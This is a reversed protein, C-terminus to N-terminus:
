TYFGCIGQEDCYEVSFGDVPGGNEDALGEAVAVDLPYSSLVLDGPVQFEPTGVFLVDPSRPAPGGTGDAPVM